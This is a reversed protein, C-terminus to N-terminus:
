PAFEDSFLKRVLRNDGPKSILWLPKVALEGAMLNVRSIIQDAQAAEMPSWRIVRDRLPTLQHCM